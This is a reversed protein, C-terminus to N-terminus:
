VAPHQCAELDSHTLGMRRRRAYRAAHTGQSVVALDPTEPSVNSFLMIAITAWAVCAWM